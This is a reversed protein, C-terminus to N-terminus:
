IELEVEKERGIEYLLKRKNKISLNEPIKILRNEKMILADLYDKFKIGDARWLHTLELDPFGPMKRVLTISVFFPGTFLRASIIDRIQLTEVENSFFFKKKIISLTKEQLIYKDPFLELPFVSKTIFIVPNTKESIDQDPPVKITIKKPNFQPVIASAIFLALLTLAGLIFAYIIFLFSPFSPLFFLASAGILLFLSSTLLIIKRILNM